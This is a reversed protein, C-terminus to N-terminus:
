PAGGAGRTRRSWPVFASAAGVIRASAACGRMTTAAVMSSAASCAADSAFPAAAHADEDTGVGLEHDLPDGAVFSRDVREAVAGVARLDRRPHRRALRTVVDLADRDVVRHD